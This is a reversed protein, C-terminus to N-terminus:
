SSVQSRLLLADLLASFVSSFIDEVHKRSKAGDEDLGLIYSALTSRLCFIIHEHDICWCRIWSRLIELGFAGNPHLTDVDMGYLLVIEIIMRVFNTFTHKSTNGGSIMWFAADILNFYCCLKVLGHLPLRLSLSIM